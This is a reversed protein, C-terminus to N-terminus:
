LAMVSQTEYNAPWWTAQRRGNSAIKPPGKTILRLNEADALRKGVKDWNEELLQNSVEERTSGPARIIVSTVRRIMALRITPTISVEAEHSTEIDTSRSVIPLDM